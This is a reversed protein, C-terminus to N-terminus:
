ASAPSQSDEVVSSGGTLFRPIPDVPPTSPLPHCSQLSRRGSGRGGRLFREDAIRMPRIPPRFAPHVAKWDDSRDADEPDSAQDNEKLDPARDTVVREGLDDHAV